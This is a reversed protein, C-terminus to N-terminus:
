LYLFVGLDSMDPLLIMQIDICVNISHRFLVGQILQKMSDSPLKNAILPEGTPLLAHGICCPHAPGRGNHHAGRQKPTEAAPGGGSAVADCVVVFM